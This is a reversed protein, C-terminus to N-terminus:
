LSKAYKLVEPAFGAREYVRRARVNAAFVNLTVLSLGRERSWAEARAMLARGVGTGEAARTTAVVSIHAHTRGFFDRVSVMHLCGVAVGDREAIMVEDGRQAAEVSALMTNADASAIEEATRWPPLDFEALRRSVHVLFPEDRRTARRITLPDDPPPTMIRRDDRRTSKAAVARVIAM